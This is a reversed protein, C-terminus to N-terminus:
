VVGEQEKELAMAHKVLGRLIRAVVAVALFLGPLLILEIVWFGTSLRSGGVIASAITVVALGVMCGGIMQLTKGTAATFASDGRRLRLCMAMFECWADTWFVIGLFPLIRTKGPMPTGLLIGLYAGAGIAIVAAYALLTFLPKPSCFWKKM